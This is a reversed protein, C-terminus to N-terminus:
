LMKFLKQANGTTIAAVEEIKLNKVDAIREAVLPIYASENRKGRYPVPALYPADTELVIHELDIDALLVDLGAKKFTVVGGIGLYFGMDIIEQAEERTGSFCHFVGTLHGDHLEKVVDICARTAERSHIAIPLDYALAMSIQRRFALYQRDLQTKDWYFDLGIEGVAWFKRQELWNQVITLQEEVNEGVYCPHLGMMPLCVEPYDAELQLMGPISTEDINPLLLRNVGQRIARDIMEPRDRDFEASYLHAHTDIWNM